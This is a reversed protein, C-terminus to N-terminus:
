GSQNKRTSLGRDNIANLASGVLIGVCTMSGFVVRLPFLRDHDSNIVLLCALLGHAFRACTSMLVKCSVVSRISPRADSRKGSYIANTRSQARDWALHLRQSRGLQLQCSSDPYVGQVHLM